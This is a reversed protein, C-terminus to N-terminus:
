VARASRAIAEVEPLERDFFGLRPAAYSIAYLRGDRVAFWVVGRITLEDSKRVSTYEFRVGSQGLFSAPDLKDLTFSSGDRSVPVRVARRHGADADGRVVGAAARGQGAVADAAAARREEPGPLLPRQRPRHRAPDLGPAPRRARQRVPEMRAFRQGGPDRGKVLTEGDGVAVITPGACARLLPATLAPSPREAPPRPEPERRSRWPSDRHLWPTRRRAPSRELYRRLAQRADDGRGRARHVAGISRHAVSPEAGTRM